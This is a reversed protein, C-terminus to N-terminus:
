QWKILPKNAIGQKNTTPKLSSYRLEKPKFTRLSSPVLWLCLVSPDVMSFGCYSIMGRDLMEQIDVDKTSVVAMAWNRKDAILEKTTGGFHVPLPINRIKYSEDWTVCIYETLNNYMEATTTANCVEMVAAFREPIPQEKKAALASTGFLLCIGMLLSIIKKM